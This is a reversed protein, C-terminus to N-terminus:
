RELQVWREDESEIFVGPGITKSISAALHPLNPNHPCDVVGCEIPHTMFFMESTITLRHTEPKKLAFGILSHLTTVEAIDKDQAHEVLYDYAALLEARNM